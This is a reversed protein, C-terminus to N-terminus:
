RVTGRMRIRRATEAITWLSCPAALYPTVTGPRGCARCRGLHDPVHDRLLAAVVDPMAAMVLTLPDIPERMPDAGAKNLDILAGGLACRTPAAEAESADEGSAVLALLSV